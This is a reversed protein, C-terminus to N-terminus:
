ALAVVMVALVGMGLEWVRVQSSGGTAQVDFPSGGGSDANSLQANPPLTPRAAKTSSAPPQVAGTSSGAAISTPNPDVVIGLSSSSSAQAARSQSSAAAASTSTSVSTALSSAPPPVASTSRTTTAAASTQAARSTTTTVAPQNGLSNGPCLARIGLDNQFVGIISTEGVDVDKCSSKVLEGVAFLGKVCEASCRTNPLFDSPTCAAITATYVSQCQANNINNIRPTFSALSVTNAALTTSTLLAFSLALTRLSTHM